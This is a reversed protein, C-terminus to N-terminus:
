DTHAPEDHRRFRMTGGDDSLQLHLEDGEIFFAAVHQLGEMYRGDLSDPPCAMRTAIMPGFSLTGNSIAYSGGGRNCDFRAEVNGEPLFHLTYREPTPVACTDNPTVTAEWQWLAHLVADPATNRAVAHPSTVTSCGAMLVGAFSLVIRSM